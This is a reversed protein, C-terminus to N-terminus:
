AVVTTAIAPSAQVAHGASVYEAAIPAAEEATHPPQVPPAYEAAVAAALQTSQAAPV